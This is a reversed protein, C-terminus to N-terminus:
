FSIFSPHIKYFIKYHIKYFIMKAKRDVIFQISLQWRTAMYPLPRLVSFTSSIRVRFEAYLFIM